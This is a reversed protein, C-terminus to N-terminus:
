AKEEERCYAKIAEQIVDKYSREGKHAHLLEWIAPDFEITLRRILTM